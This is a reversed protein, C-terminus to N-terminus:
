GGEKLFSLKRELQEVYVAFSIKDLMEDTLYHTSELLWMLTDMRSKSGCGMKHHPSPMSCEFCNM